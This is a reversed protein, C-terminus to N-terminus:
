ECFCGLEERQLYNEYIVKFNSAVHQSNPCLTYLLDLEPEERLNLDPLVLEQRSPV